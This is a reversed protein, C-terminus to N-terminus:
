NLVGGTSANWGSALAAYLEDADRLAAAQTWFRMRRPKVIYVNNKWIFISNPMSYFDIPSGNGIERTIEDLISRATRRPDDPSRDFGDALLKVQVVDLPFGDGERPVVQAEISGSGQSNVVWLNLSRLLRAQYNKLDSKSPQAQLPTFLEGYSTPQLSEGNLRVMDKILCRENETLEFVDFVFDDIQERAVREADKDELEISSAFKELLKTARELEPPHLLSIAPESRSESSARTRNVVPLGWAPFPMAKIDELTVRARETQATYGTLILYYAPLSSRLYCTVFKAIAAEGDKFGIAAAGSSFCFDDGSYAARVGMQVSTGDSFFVRHGQYLSMTGYGAVGRQLPIPILRSTDVLPSASNLAETPLYRYKLLPEPDVVKDGDKMHYGKAIRWGRAKMVSKFSPLNGLRHFLGDDRKGGWFRRRLDHNGNVLSARSVVSRDYDHLTLRNFAFSIDAKPAWYEFSGEIVGDNFGPKNEARVITCAHAAHAFLIRRFDSLNILRDLRLRVTMQKLFGENTPATILSTPLILIIRGDPRAASACKHAYAAAIQRHPMHVKHEAAWSVATLGENDKLERWPPNSIVIDFDGRDAFLNSAAFFDGEERGQAINNGILHPLKCNEDKQLHALDVPALRELLCLYLSFATVRCAMPNIDGGYITRSLLDIREQIDLTRGVDVEEYSVIRRFATTLLIGSGCAGDYVRLGKLNEIGDLAQHVALEALVRPTYFAGDITRESELFIEYIGSLLEVPIHSFDYNWFDQQGTELDVRSLFRDVIALVEPGLDSWSIDSPELFDGNFDRKLQKILKDVGDGDKERVLDHLRQVEHVKRYEDGAIGRHELYSIFMVQALLMKGQMQSGILPTEGGTLSSVAGSLQRLLQRDVRLNPDFWDTLRRQVDSSRVESASWLGDDSAQTRLLVNEEEGVDAKPISYASLRQQDCVLLASILNQNWLRQRVADIQGRDAVESANAFCITPTDEVVFVAACRFDGKPDLLDKLESAYPRRGIQHVSTVLAGGTVGYGLADLWSNMMAQSVGTPM